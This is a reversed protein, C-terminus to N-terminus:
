WTFLKHSLQYVRQKKSGTHPLNMRTLINSATKMSSLGLFERFQKNTISPGFLLYYDRLAKIHADSSKCGSKPCLWNGHSYNMGLYGCDPCQVRTLIDKRSIKFFKEVDFSPDSHNKLLFKCMKRIMEPTLKEERYKNTFEDIRKVLMRGRCVRNKADPSKKTNLICNQNAVMVLYEFPLEPFNKFLMKKLERLQFQAQLLPDDYGNQSNEKKQIMQGSNEEFELEGNMNKIEIILIYIPTIILTDIQFHFKGNFLYLDHLIYYGKESLYNLYFDSKEEGVYGAERRGKAEEILPIKPHNTPLRFLLTELLYLILPKHRIKIIM